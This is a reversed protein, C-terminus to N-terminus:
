WWGWVRGIIPLFSLLFVVGFAAEKPEENSVLVGGLFLLVGYWISAYIQLKMGKGGTRGQRHLGRM